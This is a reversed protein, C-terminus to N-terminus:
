RGVLPLFVSQREAVFSWRYDEAMRRGDAAAIGDAGGKVVATYREGGRLAGEPVFRLGVAADGELNLLAELRGAVQTGDARLVELLGAPIPQAVDLSLPSAFAVEM